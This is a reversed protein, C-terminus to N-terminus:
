NARSLRGSVDEKRSLICWFAFRLLYFAPILAFFFTLLYGVDAFLATFRSIGGDVWTRCPRPTTLKFDLGHSTAKLRHIRREAREHMEKPTCLAGYHIVNKQLGYQSSFFVVSELFIAAVSAVQLEILRTIWALNLFLDALSPESCCKQYKAAYSDPAHWVTNIMLICISLSGM